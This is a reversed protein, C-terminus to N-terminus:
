KPFNLIPPEKSDPKVGVSLALANILSITDTEMLGFLSFFRTTINQGTNLIDFNSKGKVGNNNVVANKGLYFKQLVYKVDDLCPQNKLESILNNLTPIKNVSLDVCGCFYTHSRQDNKLVQDRYDELAKLEPSEQFARLKITEESDAIQKPASIEGNNDYKKYFDYLVGVHRDIFNQQDPDIKGQAIQFNAASQLADAYRALNESTQSKVYANYQQYVYDHQNQWTVNKKLLLIKIRKPLLEDAIQQTFRVVDKLDYAM